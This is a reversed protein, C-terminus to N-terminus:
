CYKKWMHVIAWFLDLVFTTAVPLAAQSFACHASVLPNPFFTVPARGM